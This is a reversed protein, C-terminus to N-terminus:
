IILEPINERQYFLVYGNSFEEEQPNRKSAMEDNYNYWENSTPHKAFATYHGCSVGGFHCVVSYLNYVNAHTKSGPQELSLGSLPFTVKNDLKSISREKYVFRKLHIILIDPYRWVTLTKTACQNIKCKPCYWPNEKDLQESESFAKLCDYLTLPDNWSPIKLSEHDQPPNVFPLCSETDPDLPGMLRIALSDNISLELDPADPDIRCGICHKNYMCRSCTTGKGGVLLVQFAVDPAFRQLTEYLAKGSINSPLEVLRPQGILRMSKKNNSCEEGVVDLRFVVTVKLPRVFKQDHATFDTFETDIDMEKHCFPCCQVNEKTKWMDLCSVCALSKCSEHIKLQNKLAYEELCINCTPWKSKDGAPSNARSLDMEAKTPVTVLAANFGSNPRLDIPQSVSEEESLNPEMKPVVPSLQPSEIITAPPPPLMEIACITRMEGNLYRLPNHPELIKSIHNDLVECVTISTNDPLALMEILVNLLERVQDARNLVLMVRVPALSVDAPVYVVRIQMQMAHPLPVSLYMFPEFTVSVHRCVNCIVTSKFQGQFSDVIVSKNDALHKQWFADAELEESNEVSEEESDMMEISSLEGNLKAHSVLKLRKNTNSCAEDMSDADMHNTLDNIINTQKLRKGNLLTLSETEKQSHDGNEDGLAMDGGNRIGTINHVSRSSNSSSTALKRSTPSFKESDFKILNNPKPEYQQPDLVNINSTKADKMYDNIDIGGLVSHSLISRSIDLETLSNVKMFSGDEHLPSSNPSVPPAPLSPSLRQELSNKEVHSNKDNALLFAINPNSNRVEVPKDESCTAGEMDSEEKCDVKKAENLQGHLSDLLLTLFEQCDHQRYDKFQPHVVALSSKFNDPSICREKGAWIDSLLRSFDQMLKHSCDSKTSTGKSCSAEEHENGDAYKNRESLFFRVLPPTAALCQIGASMFCTNGLNRLGCSGRLVSDEEPKFLVVQNNPTASLPESSATSDSLFGHARIIRGITRTSVPPEPDTMGFPDNVPTLSASPCEARDEDTYWSSDIGMDKFPEQIPETSGSSSPGQDWDTINFCSSDNLSEASLATDCINDILFPESTRDQPENEAVLLAEEDESLCHTSEQLSSEGCEM